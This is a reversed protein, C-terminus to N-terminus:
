NIYRMAAEIGQSVAVEIGKVARDVAAELQLKEDPPPDSLV